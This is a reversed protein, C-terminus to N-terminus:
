SRTRRLTGLLARSVGETKLKRREREAAIRATSRSDLREVEERWVEPDILVAVRDGRSPAPM